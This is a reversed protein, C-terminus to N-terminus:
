TSSMKVTYREMLPMWRKPRVIMFVIFWNTRSYLYRRNSRYIIVYTLALLPM